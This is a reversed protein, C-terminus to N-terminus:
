TQAYDTYFLIVFYPANYINQTRKYKIQIYTNMHIHANTVSTPQYKSLITIIEINIFTM